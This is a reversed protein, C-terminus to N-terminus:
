PCPVSAPAGSADTYNCSGSTPPTGLIACADASLDECEPPEAESPNSSTHPVCCLPPIPDPTPSVTPVSQCPDPTLDCPNDGEQFTAPLQVQVLAGGNAACEGLSDDCQTQTAEADQTDLICCVTSTGSGSGPTPPPASSNCPDPMCSTIPAGTADAPITGNCTVAGTVPDPNVDECETEGDSGTTCCAQSGTTDDPVTGVLVDTGTGTADRLLVTRGRPDFGLLSRKGRPVTSFAASGNGGGNTHLTGVKAGGVILDYTSNQPLHNATVAFNGKTGKAGKHKQAHLSLSAKGSAGAFGSTPALPQTLNAKSSAGVLGATGIVLGAAILGAAILKTKIRENWRM